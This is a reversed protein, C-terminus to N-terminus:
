AKKKNIFFVKILAFISALVFGFFTGFIVIVTRRPKSRKEPIFAKDLVSILFNERVNALMTRQLQSQILSNIAVRVDLVETKELEAKLFTRATAAEKITRERELNNLEKIVLDNLFKAFQPSQHEVSLTLLSTDFDLSFNVMTLFAEHADFFSINTPNGDDDAEVWGNSSSFLEPDYNLQQTVPDYSQVAYVGELVGDIKILHSFFDRSEITAKAIAAEDSSLGKLNLGALSAIGGIASNQNNVVVDSEGALELLSTSKFFIPLNLSYLISSIGFFTTIIIILIKQKWLAIVLDSIQIEYNDSQASTNSQM